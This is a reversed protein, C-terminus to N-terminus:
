ARLTLCGSHTLLSLYSFHEHYITDYENGEILRLLHPIEISVRGKDAVSARLGKSFDVIDPVHAVVNNAVVLDAQGQRVAVDMGTQEGLFM